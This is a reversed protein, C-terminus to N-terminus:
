CVISLLDIFVVLSAYIVVALSDLYGSESGNLEIGFVLRLISALLLV